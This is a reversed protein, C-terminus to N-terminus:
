RGSEKKLPHLIFCGLGYFTKSPKLNFAEKKEAIIWQNRDNKIWYEEKEIVYSKLLEVIRKEGYVRHSPAFVMERGVPITLLMTGEPKLCRAMINMAEIDGDPRSQTVSYRGVLGVHEISSCNIILDFSSPEFGLNFIDGQIFNLNSFSYFWQVPLLDIATTIYGRRAAILALNNISFAGPVGCGFELAKGPGIPMNAAIWSFEVDRDGRLNPSSPYQLKYYIGLLYPELRQFIRKIM